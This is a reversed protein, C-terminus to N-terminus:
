DRGENRIGRELEEPTEQRKSTSSNNRLHYNLTELTYEDEIQVMKRKRRLMQNESLVPFEDIAVKNTRRDGYVEQLLWTGFMELLFSPLLNGTERYYEENILEILMKREEIPPLTQVVEEVRKIYKDTIHNM